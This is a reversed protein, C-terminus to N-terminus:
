QAECIRRVQTHSIGARAAIVRVSAGAQRAARIAADLESRSDSARQAADAVADLESDM